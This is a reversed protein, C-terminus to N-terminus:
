FPTMWGRRLHPTGLTKGSPLVKIGPPNMGGSCIFNDPGGCSMTTHPDASQGLHVVEYSFLQTHLGLPCFLFARPVFTGRAKKKGKKNRM